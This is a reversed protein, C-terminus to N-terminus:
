RAAREIAVLIRNGGCAAFSGFLCADAHIVKFYSIYKAIVV